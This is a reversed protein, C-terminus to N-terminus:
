AFLFVFSGYSGVQDCKAEVEFLRMNLVHMGSALFESLLLVIENV